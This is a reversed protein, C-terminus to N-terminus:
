DDTPPWDAALHPRSVYLDDEVPIRTMELDDSDAAATERTKKTATAAGRRPTGFLLESFGRLADRGSANTEASSSSSTTEVRLHINYCATARIGSDFGEVNQRTDLRLKQSSGVPHVTLLTCGKGPELLTVDSLVNKANLEYALGHLNDVLEYLAPYNEKLDDDHELWAIRQHPVEEVKVDGVAVGNRDVLSMKEDRVFRLLDKQLVPIWDDGLFEAQASLGTQRLRDCVDDDLVNREAREDTPAAVPKVSNAIMSSLKRNLKQVEELIRKSLAEQAIQPMLVKETEADMMQGQKAGKAKINKLVTAANSAISDLDLQLEEWEFLEVLTKPLARRAERSFGPFVLEQFHERDCM